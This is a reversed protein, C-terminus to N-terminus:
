MNDIYKGGQPALKLPKCCNCNQNAVWGQVKSLKLHKTETHNHEM